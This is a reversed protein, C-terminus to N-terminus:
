RVYEFFIYRFKANLLNNSLDLTAETFYVLSDIDYLDNVINILHAPQSLYLFYTVLTMYDNKNLKVEGESLDVLVKLLQSLENNYMNYFENPYSVERLRELIDEIFADPNYYYLSTEKGLYLILSNLEKIKLNDTKEMKDIISKLKKFSYSKSVITPKNSKLLINNSKDSKKANRNDFAQQNKVRVSDIKLIKLLNM